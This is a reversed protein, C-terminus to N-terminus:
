TKQQRQWHNLSIVWEGGGFLREFIKDNSLNVIGFHRCIPFGTSMLWDYAELVEIPDDGRLDKMAQIVVGIFLRLYPEKMAETVDPGPDKTLPHGYDHDTYAYPIDDAEFPM